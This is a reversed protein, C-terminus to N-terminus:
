VSSVSSTRVPLGRVACLLRVVRKVIVIFYYFSSFSTNREGKKYLEKFPARPFSEYVFTEGAKENEKM